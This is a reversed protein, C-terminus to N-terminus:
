ATEARAQRALALVHSPGTGCCGGIRTCRAFSGAAALVRDVWRAGDEFCPPALALPGDWTEALSRLGRDIELGRDACGLGVWEVGRRALPAAIRDIRGDQLSPEGDAGALPAILVGAVEPIRELALALESASRFSELVVAADPARVAVQGLWEYIEEARDSEGSSLGTPGLSLYIRDARLATEEEALRLAALARDIWDAAVERPLGGALRSPLAFTALRLERAGARLYAAHLSRRPAWEPAGSREWLGM